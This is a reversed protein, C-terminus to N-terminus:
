SVDKEDQGAVYEWHWPEFAGSGGQRAWDPNDWGFDPANERMWAYRASGSKAESSCLDVALGWGHQSTGPKAALGPKRARVAVQESYSRYAGTVCMDKGFEDVFEANLRALALAADGRLLKGDVWIECLDDTDLRGNAADTEAVKGSCGPLAARQQARSAREGMARMAALQDATLVRGLASVMSAPPQGLPTADEVPIVSFDASVTPALALAQAARSPEGTGSVAATADSTQSADVAGLGVVPTVITAVGLAAVIGVRPLHTVLPQRAPKGSARARLERRTLPIVDALPEGAHGDQYKEDSGDGDDAPADTDREPLPDDMGARATLLRQLTM